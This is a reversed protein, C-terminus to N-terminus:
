LEVIVNELQVVFGVPGLSLGVAGLGEGGADAFFGGGVAAGLVGSVGVLLLLLLLLVLDASAALLLLDGITTIGVLAGVRLLVSACDDVVGNVAFAAVDVFFVGECVGRRRGM